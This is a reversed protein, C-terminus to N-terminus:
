GVLDIVTGVIEDSTQAMKLNAEFARQAVIQNIMETALDTGSAQLAGSVIAGFGAAGPVDVVAQGSAATVIFANGGVALLGGTNAFTAIELQTESLVTGDAALARVVGDATIEIQATGQPAQFGPQVARGAADVLQGNANLTFNGARTYFQEGNAGQVIFYGPGEIALDLSSEASVVPGSALYNQGTIAVGGGAVDALEVRSPTYGPTSINALNNASQNLQGVAANMGSLSVGLGDIAM